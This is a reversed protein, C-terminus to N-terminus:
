GNFIELLALVAVPLGSSVDEGGTVSALEDADVAAGALFCQGLEVLLDGGAVAAEGHGGRLAANGRVQRVPQLVGSDV